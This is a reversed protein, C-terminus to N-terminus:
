FLAFGEGTNKRWPSKAKGENKKLDRRERRGESAKKWGKREKKEKV